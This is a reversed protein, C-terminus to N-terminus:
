CSLIVMNKFLYLESVVVPDLDFFIQPLEKDLWDAPCGLSALYRRFHGLWAAVASVVSSCTYTRAFFRSESSGFVM